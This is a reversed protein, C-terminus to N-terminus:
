RLLRLRAESGLRLRRELELAAGYGVIQGPARSSLDVSIDVIGITQRESGAERLPVGELKNIVVPVEPGPLILPRRGTVPEDPETQGAAAPPLSSDAGLQDTLPFLLSGIPDSEYPLRRRVNPVDLDLSDGTEERNTRGPTSRSVLRRLAPEDPREPPVVPEDSLASDSMDVRAVIRVLEATRLM